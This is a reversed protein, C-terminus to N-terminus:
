QFLICISNTFANTQHNTLHMQLVVHSDWIDELSSSWLSFYVFFIRLLMELSRSARMM